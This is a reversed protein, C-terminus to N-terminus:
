KLGSMKKLDDVQSNLQVLGAQLADKGDKGVLKMMDNTRKKTNESSHMMHRMKALLFADQVLGDFIAKVTAELDDFAGAEVLGQIISSKSYKGGDIALRYFETIYDPELDLLGALLGEFGEGGLVESKEALDSLKFTVEPQLSRGKIELTLM